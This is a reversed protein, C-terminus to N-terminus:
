NLQQQALRVVHDIAEQSIGNELCAHTYYAVARGDEKVYAEILLARLEAVEKVEEHTFGLPGIARLSLTAFYASLVANTLLERRLKM